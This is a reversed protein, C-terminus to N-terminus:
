ERAEPAATPTAPILWTLWYFGDGCPGTIGPDNMGPDHIIEGERVLVVHNCGNGSEGTLMAVTPHKTRTKHLELIGALDAGESHIPIALEQLGRESLWQDYKPQVETAWLEPEMTTVWHPVDDRDLGLMGALCTRYCDGYVGSEPDHRFKQKQYAM